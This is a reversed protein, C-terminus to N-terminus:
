HRFLHEDIYLNQNMLSVLLLTSGMSINSLSCNVFPEVIESVYAVSGVNVRQLVSDVNAIFRNLLNM